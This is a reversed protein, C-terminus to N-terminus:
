ERQIFCEDREMIGEGERIVSELPVISSSISAEGSQPKGERLKSLPHL